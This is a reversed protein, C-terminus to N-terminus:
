LSYPGLPLYMCLYTYTPDRNRIIQTKNNKDMALSLKNPIAKNNILFTWNDFSETDKSLKILVQFLIDIKM